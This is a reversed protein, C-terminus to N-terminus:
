EATNELAVLRTGPLWDVGVSRVAEVGDRVLRGRFEDDVWARAVVEAGTHPGVRYEYRDVIEDVTAQEIVGKEVLLSQLAKVRLAIPEPVDSRAHDAGEDHDHAM